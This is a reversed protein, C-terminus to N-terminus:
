KTRAASVELVARVDGALTERLAVGAERMFFHGGPLVISPLPFTSEVSWAAVDAAGVTADDAGAFSRLPIPLPEGDDRAYDEAMAFDARIMPLMLDLLERNEFVEEPTGKYRRLAAILEPEALRAIKPTRDALGPARSGGVALYIPLPQHRRRLERVCEFAVVAGLSHGYFAFPLDLL